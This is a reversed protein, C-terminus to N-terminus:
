QRRRTENHFYSFYYLFVPSLINLRLEKRRRMETHIEKEFFGVISRSLIGLFGCFVVILAIEALVVNNLASERWYPTQKAFEL